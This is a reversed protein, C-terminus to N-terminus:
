PAPQSGRHAAAPAPPRAAPLRPRRTQRVARRVKKATRPALARWADNGKGLERREIGLLEFRKYIATRNMGSIASMQRGTFGAARFLLWYEREADALFEDRTM